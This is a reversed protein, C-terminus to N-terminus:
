GAIAARVAEGLLDIENPMNYFHTSLRIRGGDANTWAPIIINRAKLEAKLKGEPSPPILFTSLSCSMDERDPTILKAGAIDDFMARGYAALERGRAAIRDRGIRKQFEIAAGVGAPLAVSHTGPREFNGIFSENDPDWGWGVIFPDLLAQSAPAAYLFGTGKPACLWKHCNGTYFDCGVSGVNFPIMGPAHAGDIATIIDNERALACIEGVPMILGTTTTIHSCYIVRTAPSIAARFRDVIDQPGEPPQPIEIRKITLGRKRSVFEWINNVAGYEQDTTLVEDGKQLVNLGRAIMNMGVTVNTVFVFDNPQMGGFEGLLEKSERHRAWLPGFNEGPNSDLMRIHEVTADIVSGPCPGFSGNNLYVTQRPLPFEDRVSNWYDVSM